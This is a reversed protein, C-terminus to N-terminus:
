IFGISQRRNSLDVVVAEGSDIQEEAIEALPTDTLRFEFGQPDFEVNVYAGNKEPTIRTRIGRKGLETRVTELSDHYFVARLRTDNQSEKKPEEVAIWEVLGLDYIAM